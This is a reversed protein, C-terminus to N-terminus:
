VHFPEAHDCKPPTGAIFPPTRVGTPMKLMVCM